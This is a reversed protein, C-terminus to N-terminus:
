VQKNHNKLKGRLHMTAIFLLMGGWAILPLYYHGEIPKWIHDIIFQM